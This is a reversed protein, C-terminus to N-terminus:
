LDQFLQLRVTYKSWPIYVAELVGYLNTQKLWVYSYSIRSNSIQNTPLHQLLRDRLWLIFAICYSTRRFLCPRYSCRKDRQSVSCDGLSPLYDREFCSVIFVIIATRGGSATVTGAFCEACPLSLIGFHTSIRYIFTAFTLILAKEM